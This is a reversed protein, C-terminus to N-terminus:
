NGQAKPSSACGKAFHGVQGCRHCKIPQAAKKPPPTGQQNRPPHYNPQQRQTPQTRQPQQSQPHSRLELKDLRQLITTLIEMTDELKAQPQVPAIRSSKPNLYSEMELTASVAANLTEPRRQKVSFAVQPNDLQGLFHNLALCERAEEQLNPWAKDALVKVDQAFDAWGEGRLKKRTQFEAM